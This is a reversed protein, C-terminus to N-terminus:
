RILHQLGAEICEDRFESSRCCEGSLPSEIGDFVNGIVPSDECGCQKITGDPTVMWGCGPCDSETRTDEEDCDKHYPLGLLEVGRGHPLCDRTGGDSTDRIGWSYGTKRKGIEEFAHVVEPSVPDHYEDQSLEGFIVGAKTLNAILMARRTISGNTIVGLGGNDPTAYPLAELLMREFQPHLTPEGGGLFPPSDYDACLELAKRFTRMTM